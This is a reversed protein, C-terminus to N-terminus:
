KSDAKPREVSILLVIRLREPAKAVTSALPTHGTVLETIDTLVSEGTQLTFRRRFRATEDDAPELVILSDEDGLSLKLKLNPVLANPQATGRQRSQMRAAQGNWM